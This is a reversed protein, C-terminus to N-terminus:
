FNKNKKGTESTLAKENLEFSILLQRGKKRIKHLLNNLSEDPRMRLYERGIWENTFNLINELFPQDRCIECKDTDKPSLFKYTDCGILLFKSPLSKAARRLMLSLSENNINGM